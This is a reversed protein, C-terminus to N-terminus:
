KLWDPCPIHIYESDINSISNDQTTIVKDYLMGHNFLYKKKGIQLIKIYPVRTEWAENYPTTACEGIHFSPKWPSTPAIPAEESCGFLLFMLIIYKM